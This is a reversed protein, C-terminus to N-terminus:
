PKGRNVPKRSVTTAPTIKKLYDQLMEETAEGPIVGQSWTVFDADLDEWRNDEVLKTSLAVVKIKEMLLTKKSAARSATDSADEGKTPIMLAQLLGIRLATSFAKATASSAADMSEGAVVIVEESGDSAVLRYEVVVIVEHMRTGGGTTIDRAIPLGILKPYLNIGHEVFLPAARNLVAEIGRYKFSYRANEEEKRIVGVKERVLILQDHILTV